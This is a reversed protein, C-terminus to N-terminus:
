QYYRRNLKKRAGSLSYGSLSFQCTGTEQNYTGTADNHYFIGEGDKNTYYWGGTEPREWRFQGESNKSLKKIM